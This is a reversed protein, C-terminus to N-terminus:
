EQATHYVRLTQSKAANSSPPRSRPDTNNKALMNLLKKGTHLFGWSIWHKSKGTVTITKSNNM